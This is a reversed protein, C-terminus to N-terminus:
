QKKNLLSKALKQLRWNYHKTADELNEKCIYNCANISNLYTFAQQRVEFGYASSSYSLLENFAKKKGNSQYEPTVLNLTLWLLRVNKDSFGIIGKTKDLYKARDDPFNSWLRYLAAEITTYSKDNLLTEYYEKLEKPIESLNQAIAQRVKLDNSQFAKIYLENKDVLSDKLLDNFLEVKTLSNIRESFKEIKHQNRKKTFVVLDEDVPCSLNIIKANKYAKLHKLDVQMSELISLDTSELWTKTFEDLNEGSTNEVESIFDDTEVNKFRHKTLYNKVALRFADDGVRERLMHLVWAGKQYFTLSSSKPNLLSAGGGAKDQALLQEASEYLKWYYYDEGFVDREALLAYYTAFGEHLWHHTGSTETVLDGFWQHALEHANVNVYNRDVFGISDTVFTDTFITLSTNEMGAYLFDHVPVQKYNQWPYPVGIEEELFDFMQKTYRYTPEFKDSDEPNYYMELPIGSKSYETKKDYKGIVLAVLYSSMPEKMDYEWLDYSSGQMKLVMKGNSIAEYGKPAAITLDFEIKDNMDDISPLWNSTYKGQGQTWIQNRAENEWGVFYMAKKPSAFFIFDLAYDESAKFDGYVILKKGDNRFGVPNKNITVNKFRMNIADLYISDTQKLVDFSIKYSNFATSDVNIQNFLIVAEVRKFDVVDTQQASVVVSILLLFFLINYKM